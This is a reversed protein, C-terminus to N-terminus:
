LESVERGRRQLTRSLNSRMEQTTVRDNQQQARKKVNTCTTAANHEQTHIRNGGKSTNQNHDSTYPTLSDFKHLNRVVPTNHFM